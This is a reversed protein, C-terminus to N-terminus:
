KIEILDRRDMTSFYAELSLFADYVAGEGLTVESHFFDPTIPVARSSFVGRERTVLNTLWKLEDKEAFLFTTQPVAVNKVASELFQTFATSWSATAKEFTQAFAIQEETSLEDKAFLALRSKADALSGGAAAERVVSFTGVPFTAIYRLGDRHAVAIDTIEAGVDIILFNNEERLARMAAFAAFCFSHFHLKAHPFAKLAADGVAKRIGHDAEAAYHNVRLTTGIVPRDLATPYGNVYSQSVVSEILTGSAAEGKRSFFEKVARAVTDKGVRVPKESKSNITTIKAHYWPAALFVRVIKPAPGSKLSDFAKTLALQALTEIAERAEKTGSSLPVRLTKTLQPKEKANGKTLLAIGISGSGIDVVCESERM